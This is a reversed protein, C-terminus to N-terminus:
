KIGYKLRLGDLENSFKILSDIVPESKERYFELMGVAYKLKQDAAEARDVAAKAKHPNLKKLAEYEALAANLVPSHKKCEAAHGAVAKKDKEWQTRNKKMLDSVRRLSDFIDKITEDGDAGGSWEHWEKASTLKSALKANSELKPPRLKALKPDLASWTEAGVVGDVTCKHAKQFARVAALTLKDFIGTLELKKGAKGSANLAKQLDKVDPGKAGQKLLKPM